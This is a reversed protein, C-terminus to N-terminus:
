LAGCKVADCCELEGSCYVANCWLEEGSVVVSGQVAGCVLGRVVVSCQM